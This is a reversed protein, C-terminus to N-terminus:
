PHGPLQYVHVHSEHFGDEGGDFITVPLLSEQETWEGLFPRYMTLMVPDYDVLYRVSSSRMFGMLDQRRLADLAAENIAGDLNVVRRESFYGLIGANFAAADDQAATHAHLWRAGSLLEVQWPYVGSKLRQSTSFTTLVVLVCGMLLLAGSLPPRHRMVRLFLQSTLRGRLLFELILGASLAALWYMQDFYWSRPYWRIFTHVFILGLGSLWLILTAWLARQLAEASDSGTRRRARHALTAVVVLALALGWFLRGDTMLYWVFYQWSQLLRDSMSHGSLAYRTHLVYPVAVGSSQVVAGFNLWNWALWPLIGLLATTGVVVARRLRRPPETRLLLIVGFAAVYVATDTRALFLLALLGGLVVDLQVSQGKVIVCVYFIIAFLVTVLSTELGNLSDIVVLSWLFYLGSAFVALWISCESKRLVGFLVLAAGLNLATGVLLALRMFSAADFNAGIVLILMWLPHYGNTFHTGDFTSGAGSAINRAVTLYYFADDPVVRVITEDSSMIFSLRVGLGLAVCCLLVVFPLRLKM